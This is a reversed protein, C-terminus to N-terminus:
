QELYHKLSSLALKWGPTIVAYYRSWRFSEEYGSQVVRLQSTRGEASCSVQLAMPGVPDGDPPLWYAGGVFFGDEPDYEMVTGYFVGGLRGLVDDRFETIPWEIAYVGLARAATVTRRAQWWQELAAPEFFAGIVSRCPAAIAIAHDFVPTRGHRSM